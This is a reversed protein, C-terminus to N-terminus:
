VASLVDDGHALNIIDKGSFANRLGHVGRAILLSYLPRQFIQVFVELSQAEDIQHIVVHEVPM